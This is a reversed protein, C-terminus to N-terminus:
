ITETLNIAMKQGKITMESLTFLVEVDHDFLIISLRDCPRLTMIVTKIAHKVIDLVSFGNEMKKGRDDKAICEEAMSGSRDVLAVIDIPPCEDVNKAKVSVKLLGSQNIETDM